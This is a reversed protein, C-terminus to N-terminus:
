YLPLKYANFTYNWTQYSLEDFVCVQTTGNNTWLPRKPWACLQANAGVNDGSLHTANLTAPAIGNEVWEIMVGFNTQPWPGNPQSTSPSCHAAGPVLFLRYFDALKKSSANLALGPYMIQRVSEHYHVSSGAPVSNDSEGHFHLIKGGNKQITTLDPNNTQLSDGFKYWGEIMWDRVTDYTVNALTSLNDEDLEELFRAIWEGGTSAISLGWTNTTNDYITKADEFSASAQYSIYARNGENDHLGDLITQAVAIGQASVTGNQAPNAAQPPGMQRKTVGSSFSLGQSTSSSAACYYSMGLTANINYHIMCLDTRSVVGDVKGDLADCNSITENVIKELECPPPYYDLTQEVVNSYIHQVQQQGYRFAPAGAIVGDYIDGYHQAQSWGGHGGESCGQYYAFLKESGMDFFNSTFAKGITTCEGLGKYGFMYVAEWNVSGNAALFVADFNTSFSGFGADTTGTAAGYTVGAALSSQASIAYGGGGQTQYRNKFNSPSPMWYEVQVKDGKGDHTYAFTVNCYDIVSNPFMNEGTSSANYVANATVSSPNITIGFITGNAPLTSTVYDTTCVSDLSTGNTAGAAGIAAVSITLAPSTRM